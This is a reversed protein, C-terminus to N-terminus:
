ELVKTWFGNIFQYILKDTTNYYLRGQQCDKLSEPHKPFYKLNNQMLNKLDLPSATEFVPTYSFKRIRNNNMDCIYVKNNNDVTIGKPENFQSTDTGGFKDLFIGDANFIQLRHNNTDLIYVLENDGITHITIHARNNQDFNFQGNGIGGTGWSGLLTKNMSYKMIRNNRNDIIYLADKNQNFAIGTPNNLTVNPYSNSLWIESYAGDATFKIIRNNKPDSVYVFGDTDVAMGGIYQIGLWSHYFKRIYEGTKSFIQIRCFYNDAIYINNNKNDFAINNPAWIQGDASGTNGWQSLMNGNNDFIKIRSNLCDSIYINGSSSDAIVCNPSNLVSSDGWQKEFIVEANAFKFFFGSFILIFLFLKKKLCM